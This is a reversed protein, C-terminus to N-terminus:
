IVQNYLCLILQLSTKQREYVVQIVEAESFNLELFDYLATLDGRIEGHIIVTIDKNDIM